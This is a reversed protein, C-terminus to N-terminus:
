IIQEVTMDKDFTNHYRHKYPHQYVIRKIGAQNLSKSCDPCPQWNVYVTAGDTSVGNKACQLLANLEAHITRKCGGEHMLHGVDDCHESGSISGNYGTSVIRKDKVIVCGVHLRDCTARSSVTNAIDMFYQDWSQKSM